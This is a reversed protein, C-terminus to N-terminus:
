QKILHGSDVKAGTNDLVEYIHLGSSLEHLNHQSYGQSLPRSLLMQGTASYIRITADTPSYITAYTRIPNPYITVAQKDIDVSNVIQRCGPELCGNADLKFVFPTSGLPALTPALLLFVNGSIIMSGDDLIQQGSLIYNEVYTDSDNIDYTSTWLSDAASDYMGLVPLRAQKEISAYHGAVM